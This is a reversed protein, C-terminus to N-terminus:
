NLKCSNKMERWHEDMMQQLEVMVEETSIFKSGSNPLMVYHAKLSPLSILSTEHINSPDTWHSVLSSPFGDVPFSAFPYM